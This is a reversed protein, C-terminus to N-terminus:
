RRHWRLHLSVGGKAQMVTMSNKMRETQLALNTALVMFNPVLYRHGEMEAITYGPPVRLTSSSPLSSADMGDNQTHQIPNM